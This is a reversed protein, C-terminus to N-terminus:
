ELQRLEMLRKDPPLQGLEGCARYFEAMDDNHRILLKQLAPVYDRYTTVAALQANNLDKSFWDDYGTYGGWQKKLRQYQNRLDERLRIKQHTKIAEDVPERYLKKLKNRTDTVLTVFDAQRQRYEFYAKKQELIKEKDIATEVQRTLWRKIGELEVTTAFAENFATDDEIYLQQHALEHFILGALHVPSRKIITNLLPDDFWGLTSYAAVGAVYTELGQEALEEAYRIADEEEFYGRYGVCGAVPFCWKKLKVEFPPAAFVNWVAYPRKLDVYSRYSNNRPLFLNESAFERIKLVAQLKEQLAAPTSPDKLLEDIPRRKQILELQGDISQAYYGMTNCATLAFTVLLM